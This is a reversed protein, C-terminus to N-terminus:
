SITLDEKLPLFGEKDLSRIIGRLLYNNGFGMVYKKGKIKVPILMKKDILKRIQRSIESAFKGPFISKLDSAQIIQKEAAKKLMKSETTTIHEQELSYQIAPHLIEKSLFNYDTLRDIKNIEAKLGNLVYLCWELLGTDTGTDAGQLKDYYKDRDSCFIATPNLIRGKEVNFGLKVLLAYTLLRVTRGNGNTFPHIWVFRHHALAVKLLDYKQDDKKNIFEFLEDMYESIKFSNPPVHSSNMIKVNQKRYEGPTYDGEKVPSLDKVIRKHIESIFMKNLDSTKINEEIFDMCKEINQIEKINESIEEKQKIKTEMYEVITTNNGEIRASGISELRHFINKLQFFINPDTSGGLKKRRLHDLEIVLNTLESAFLPEVLQLDHHVFKPEQM